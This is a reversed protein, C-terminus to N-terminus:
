RDFGRGQDPGGREHRNLYRPGQQQDREPQLPRELSRGEGEPPPSAPAAGSQVELHEHARPDKPLSGYAKLARALQDVTVIEGIRTGHSAILRESDIRKSGPARPPGVQIYFTM